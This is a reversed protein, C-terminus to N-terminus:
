FRGIEENVKRAQEVHVFHGVGKLLILKSDPIESAGNEAIMAPTLDPHLFRNPIFPDEEGFIVLVPQTILHLHEFVPQNLMGAITAKYVTGSPMANKFGPLFSSFSTDIYNKSHNILWRTDHHNFIEFGAPSILILKSILAPNSIGMIVAIQGGLSHGILKVEELQLLKIFEIITEAFFYPTYRYDGSQSLGHGPLDMAFCHFDTHLGDLNKDWTQRNEALGHIFILAPKGPIGAETYALNIGNVIKFQPTHAKPFIM